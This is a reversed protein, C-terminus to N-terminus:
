YKLSLRQCREVKASKFANSRIKAFTKAGDAQPAPPAFIVGDIETLIDGVQFGRNLFPSSKPLNVIVYGVFRKGSEDYMPVLHIKGDWYHNPHVDQPRDYDVCTTVEVKPEASAWPSVALCLALLLIRMEHIMGETSETSLCCHM